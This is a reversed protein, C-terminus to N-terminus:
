IQPDIISKHISKRPAMTDASDNPLTSGCNLSSYTTSSKIEFLIIEMADWDQKTLSQRRVCICPGKQKTAERVIWGYPVYSVDGLQFTAYHIPYTNQSGKANDSDVEKVYKYVDRLTPKDELVSELDAIVDATRMGLVKRRGLVQVRFTGLNNRECSPESFTPSMAALSSELHQNLDAPLGPVQKPYFDKFITVAEKKSDEVLKRNGRGGSGFEKPPSGCYPDLSNSVSPGVISPPYVGTPLKYFALPPHPLPHPPRVPFPTPPARHPRRCLESICRKLVIM